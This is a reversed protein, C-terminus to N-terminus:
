KKKYNIKKNGGIRIHGLYPSALAVGAVGTIGERLLFASVHQKLELLLRSARAYKSGEEQSSNHSRLRKEESYIYVMSLM